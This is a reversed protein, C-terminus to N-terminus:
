TGLAATREAGSCHMWSNFCCPWARCEYLECCYGQLVKYKDLLQNINQPTIFEKHLNLGENEHGGDM